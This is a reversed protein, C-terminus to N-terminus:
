GTEVAEPCQKGGVLAVESCVHENAPAQSATLEPYGSKSVVRRRITHSAMQVCPAM